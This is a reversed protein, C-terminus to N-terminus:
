AAVLISKTGLSFLIVVKNLGNVVGGWFFMSLYTFKWCFM